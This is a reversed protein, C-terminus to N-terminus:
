NGPSHAAESDGHAPVIKPMPWQAPITELRARPWTTPIEELARDASNIPLVRLHPFENQSVVTGPAQAGISSPPPHVIIEPDIQEDKLRSRDVTNPVFMMKPETLPVAHWGPPLKSFDRGSLPPLVLPTQWLTHPTLPVPASPTQWLPHPTVPAPATSQCFTMTGSLFLGLIAIRM